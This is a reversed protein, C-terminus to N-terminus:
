SRRAAAAQPGLEEALHRCRGPLRPLGIGGDGDVEEGGQLDLAVGAQRGVLEQKDLRPHIHLVAALHQVLHLGRHNGYGSLQMVFHRGWFQTALYISRARVNGFWGWPGPTARGARRRRRSWRRSSTGGGACTAAPSSVPTRWCGPM